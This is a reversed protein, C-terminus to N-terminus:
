TLASYYYYLRPFMGHHMPVSLQSSAQMQIRAAPSKIVAAVNIQTGMM